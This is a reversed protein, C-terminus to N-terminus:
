RGEPTGSVRSSCSVYTVDKMACFQPQADTSALASSQEKGWREVYGRCAELGSRRKRRTMTCARSGPSREAPCTRREEDVEVGHAKEASEIKM